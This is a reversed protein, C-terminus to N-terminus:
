QEHLTHTAVKNFEYVGTLIIKGDGGIKGTSFSTSVVGDNRLFTLQGTKDDVRWTTENINTSGGITGDKLLTLNAIFGQNSFAFIRGTIRDTLAQGTPAPQGPLAEYQKRIQNKIALAAEFNMAKAMLAAQKELATIARLRDRDMDQDLKALIAEAEKPLPVEEVVEAAFGGTISILGM